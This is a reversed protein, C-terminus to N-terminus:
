SGASTGTYLGAQLGRDGTGCMDCWIVAVPVAILIPPTRSGRYLAEPFWACGGVLRRLYREHQLSQCVEGRDRCQKAHVCM